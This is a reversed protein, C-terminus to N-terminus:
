QQGSIPVAPPFIDGISLLLLLVLVWTIFFFSSGRDEQVLLFTPPQTGKVPFVPEQMSIQMPMFTSYIGWCLSSCFHGVKCSMEWETRFLRLAADKAFSNRSSQLTCNTKQKREQRKKWVAAATATERKSTEQKLEQEVIYWSWIISHLLSKLESKGGYKQRRWSIHKKLWM